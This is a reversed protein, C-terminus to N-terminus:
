NRWEYHYIAKFGGGLFITLTKQEKDKAGKELPKQSVIESSFDKKFYKEGASNALNIGYIGQSFKAMQQDPKWSATTSITKLTYNLKIKEGAAIYTQPDDWKVSYTVGALLKGSSKDNRKKVIEINGKSGSFKIVDIMFDSTGALPKESTNTGDVFEYKVFYWGPQNSLVTTNTPTENINARTISADWQYSYIAKFGCGMNITLNKLEKDKNGKKIAKQSSIQSNFDKNFYIDGSTNALYIGYIGQEFKATQQEPTWSTSSITKLSYNMRIIDGPFITNQPDTWSVIYTVGALLKGSSKDNRNQTIQINGKEGTFKIADIMYDSTGALTKESSSTGDTFKYDVLKWAGQAFIFSNNLFLISFMLFIKMFFFNNKVEKGLECFTKKEKKPPYNTKTM